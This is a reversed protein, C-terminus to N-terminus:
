ARWAGSRTSLSHRSTPTEGTPTPGTSGSGSAFRTKRPLDGFNTWTSRPSRERSTPTPAAPARRVLRRRGAPLAMGNRRCVPHLGEDHRHGEEGIGSWWSDWAMMGPKIWSTDPIPLTHEPQARHRKRDAPGAGPRDDSRALPFPPAPLRKVLGNGDWRPALRSRLTVASTGAAQPERALWLGAWDVLDAETVAVWAAPTHTLLPLGTVTEIPLDSLRQRRFEWEQSGHFGGRSDYDDPPVAIHDGAFCVSDTTFAFETLEEDIIIDAPGAPQPLLYRFGVGDDFARFVVSFTRAAGGKERLTIALERYHDRM